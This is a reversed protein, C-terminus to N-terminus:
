LLILTSTIGNGYEGLKEGQEKGEHIRDSINYPM